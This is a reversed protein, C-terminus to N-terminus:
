IRTAGQPVKGRKFEERQAHSGLDMTFKIWSGFINRVAMNWPGSVSEDFQWVIYYGDENSFGENDSQLIGGIQNWITARVSSLISYGEDSFAEEMLQFAYIVKVDKLYRGLWKAGSVPQCDKIEELFEYIEDQGLSGPEIIEREIRTVITGQSNLVDFATWNEHDQQDEFVITATVGDEAFSRIIHEFDLKQRNRSLIRIFYGM